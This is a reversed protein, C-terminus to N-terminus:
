QYCICTLTLGNKDSCQTPNTLVLKKLTGKGLHSRHGTRGTIFCRAIKISIWGKLGFHIFIMGIPVMEQALKTDLLFAQFEPLADKKLAIRCIKWSIGVQSFRYIAV